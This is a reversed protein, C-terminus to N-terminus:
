ELIILTQITNKELHFHRFNVLGEQDDEEQVDTLLEVSEVDEPNVDNLDEIVNEVLLSL